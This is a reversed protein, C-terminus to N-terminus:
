HLCVCSYVCWYLVTLGKGMFLGESWGCVFMCEVWMYVEVCM